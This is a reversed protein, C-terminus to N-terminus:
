RRISSSPPGHSCRRRTPSTRRTDSSTASRAGSPVRAHRPVLAAQDRPQAPERADAEAARDPREESGQPAARPDAPRADPGPRQLARGPGARHPAGHLRPRAAHLAPVLVAGQHARRHGRDLLHEDHQAHLPHRVERGRARRPDRRRRAAHRDPRDARDRGADGHRRRGDEHAADPQGHRGRRAPAAQHRPLRDENARYTSETWSGSDAYDYFMRPVRRKALVRLDEIHTIVPM